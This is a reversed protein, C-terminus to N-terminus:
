NLTPTKLKLCNLRFLTILKESEILKGTRTICYEQHYRGKKQLKYYFHNSKLSYLVDPKTIALSFGRFGFISERYNRSVRSWWWLKFTIFYLQSFSLQSSHFTKRPRKEGEPRLGNFHRRFALNTSFPEKRMRWALDKGSGWEM